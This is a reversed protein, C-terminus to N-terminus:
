KKNQNTKATVISKGIILILEKCENLLPLINDPDKQMKAKIIFKLWFSSEKLEKLTVQLKHIFDDPSEASQSENYNAAVSTASRFLQKYVHRGEYTKPFTKGLEFVKVAFELTRETLDHKM